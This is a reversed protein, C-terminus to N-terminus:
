TPAGARHLAARASRRRWGVVGLALGVALLIAAPAIFVRWSAREGRLLAATTVLAPDSPVTVARVDAGVPYLVDGPIAVDYTAGRFRFSGRCAYGAANSGSGGMLGVCSDVRIEVPVGRGRLADIESNKDIGAALLAGALALLAALCMVAGVRGAVRPDVRVGAGRLPAIRGPDEDPSPGAPEPVGPAVVAM